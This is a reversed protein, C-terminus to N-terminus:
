HKESVLWAIIYGCYKAGNLQVLLYLGSGDSLKQPKDIEKASEVQMSTLAM